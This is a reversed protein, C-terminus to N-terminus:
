PRRPPSGHYHGHLRPNPLPYPLAPPPRPAFRCFVPETHEPTLALSERLQLMADIPRHLAYCCPYKKLALGPDVFVFPQGLAEAAREMDSQETGYTSFFGAAAEMADPAASFGSAALRVAAVANRAAWGAHLPKTMTGFNCRLGSAMAGAVGFAGQTTAGDFIPLADM